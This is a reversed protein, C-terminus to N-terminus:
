SPARPTREGRLVVLKADTTERLHTLLREGPQGPALDDFEGARIRECLEENAARLAQRRPEPGVADSRAPASVRGLLGTLGAIERADTADRQEIERDVMRLVNIAVRVLFQRRGDHAPLIEDDLFRAVAGLLEHVTPRDQM